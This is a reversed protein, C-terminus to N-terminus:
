PPADLRAEFDAESIIWLQVLADWRARTGREYSGGGGKSGVDEGAFSLGKNSGVGQSPTPAATESTSSLSHSLSLSLSLSLSSLTLSHRSLPSLTALSYQSLSLTTLFHSLPSLILSHHSLSLTILSLSLYLTHSLSPRVIVTPPRGPITPM